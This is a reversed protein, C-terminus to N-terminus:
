DKLVDASSIQGVPLDGLTAFAYTELSGSWQSSYRANRWTAKRLEIVRATAEVSTPMSRRRKHALPDGGARTMKRNALAAERAEALSVAPNGGLGLQHRRGRMTIRQVWRRSGSPDVRLYLGGVDAHM